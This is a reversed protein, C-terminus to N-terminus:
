ERCKFGLTELNLFWLNNPTSSSGSPYFLGTTPHKGLFAEFLALQDSSKATGGSENECPVLAMTPPQRSM